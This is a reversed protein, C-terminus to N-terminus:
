EGSGPKSFQQKLFREATQPSGKVNAHVAVQRGPFADDVIKSVLSAVFLAERELGPELGSSQKVRATVTARAGIRFARWRARVRSVVTLVVDRPRRLITLLCTTHRLYM